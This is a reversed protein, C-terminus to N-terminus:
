HANEIEFYTKNKDLDHMKQGQKYVWLAGKRHKYFKLTEEKRKKLIKFPRNRDAMELSPASVSTKMSKSGLTSTLIESEFDSGSKM